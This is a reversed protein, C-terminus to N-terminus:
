HDYNCDVVPPRSQGFSRKSATMSWKFNIPNFTAATPLAELQCNSRASQFKFPWVVGLWIAANSERHTSKKPSSLKGAFTAWFLAGAEIIRNPVMSGANLTIEEVTVGNRPSGACVGQM